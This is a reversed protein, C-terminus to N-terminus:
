PQHHFSLIGIVAAIGMTFGSFCCGLLLHKYGEVDAKFFAVAAFALVIALIPLFGLGFRVALITFFIFVLACIGSYIYLQLDANHFYSWVGATPVTLIAIFGLPLLVTESTYIGAIECVLSYVIIAVVLALPAMTLLTNM